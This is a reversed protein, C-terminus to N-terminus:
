LSVRPKNKQNLGDHSPKSDRIELESMSNGDDTGGKVKTATLNETYPRHM